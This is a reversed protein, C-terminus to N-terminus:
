ALETVQLARAQSDLLPDPMPFELNALNGPLLVRGIVVSLVKLLLRLNLLHDPEKTSILDISATLIPLCPM